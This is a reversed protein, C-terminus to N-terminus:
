SNDRYIITLIICPASVSQVISVIEIDKSQTLWNNIREEFDLSEDDPSNTIVKCRLM